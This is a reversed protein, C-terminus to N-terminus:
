PRVHYFFGYVQYAHLEVGAGGGQFNVRLRSQVGDAPPMLYPFRFQEALNFVNAGFYGRFITDVVSANEVRELFLASLDAPDTSSGRIGTVAIGYDQSPSVIDDTMTANAAASNEALIQAGYQSLGVPSGPPVCDYYALVLLGSGAANGIWLSDFNDIVVGPFALVPGANSGGTYIAAPSDARIVVAVRGSDRMTRAIQSPEPKGTRAISLDFTEIQM